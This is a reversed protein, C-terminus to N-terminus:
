GPSGIAIGGIAELVSQLAKSRAGCDFPPQPDYELYLQIAQATEDGAIQAALTVYRGGDALLSRSGVKMVIRRADGLIARARDSM